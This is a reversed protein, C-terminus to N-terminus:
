ITSNLLVFVSAQSHVSALYKVVHLIGNVNQCDGARCKQTSSFNMVDSRGYFLRKILIRTSLFALNKKLLKFRLRKGSM